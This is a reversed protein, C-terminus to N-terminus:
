RPASSTTTPRNGGGGGDARFVYLDSKPDYHFTLGAAPPCSALITALDLERRTRLKALEIQNANHAWLASEAVILFFLFTKM